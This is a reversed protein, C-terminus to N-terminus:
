IHIYKKRKTQNKTSVQTNNQTKYPNAGDEEQRERPTTRGANATTEHQLSRLSRMDRPDHSIYSPLAGWISLVAVTVFPFCRAMLGLQPEVGLCVSQSVTLQLM